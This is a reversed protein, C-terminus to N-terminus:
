HTKAELGDTGLEEHVCHYKEREDDIWIMVDKCTGAHTVAAPWKCSNTSQLSWGRGLWEGGKIKKGDSM